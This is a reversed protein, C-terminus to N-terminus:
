PWASHSSSVSSTKRRRSAQHAARGAQETSYLTVLDAVLRDLGFQARARESGAAGLRAMLAPDRLLTLVAEALGAQDDRDVLFGTRGHAVVSAAGGVATTVVPVGAAQAEILSVPTGENDSTQVVIDSAHYISPM